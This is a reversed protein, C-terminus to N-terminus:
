HLGEKPMPSPKEKVELHRIRTVLDQFRLRETHNEDQVWCGADLM